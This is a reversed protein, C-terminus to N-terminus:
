VPDTAREAALEGIKAWQHSRIARIFTMVAPSFRRGSLSVLSVERTVEPDTV